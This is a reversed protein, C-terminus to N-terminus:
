KISYKIFYEFVIKIKKFELNEEPGGSSSADALVLNGIDVNIEKVLKKLRTEQDDITYEAGKGSIKDSLSIGVYIVDPVVEKEARGIVEIFPIESKSTGAQM